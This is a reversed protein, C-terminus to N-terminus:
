NEIFPMNLGSLRYFEVPGTDSFLNKRPDTIIMRDATKFEITLLAV